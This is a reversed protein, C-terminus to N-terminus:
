CLSPRLGLARMSRYCIGFPQSSTFYPIRLVGDPFVGAQGVFGGRSILPQRLRFAYSPFSPATNTLM